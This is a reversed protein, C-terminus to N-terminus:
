AWGPKMGEWVITSGTENAVEVAIEHADEASLCDSVDNFGYDEASGEFHLSYLEAKGDMEHIIVKGKENEAGNRMAQIRSIQEDWPFQKDAKADRLFEDLRGSEKALLLEDLRVTDEEGNEFRTVTFKGQADVRGYESGQRIFQTADVKKIYPVLAEALAEEIEINGESCEYFTLFVFSIGSVEQEAKEDYHDLLESHANFSSELIQLTVSTRDSM